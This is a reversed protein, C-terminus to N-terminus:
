ATAGRSAASEAHERGRKCGFEPKGSNPWEISQGFDSVDSKPQLTPSPSLPVTSM